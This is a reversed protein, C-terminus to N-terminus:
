TVARSINGTPASEHFCTSAFIRSSKDKIYAREFPRRHRHHNEAKQVEVAKVVSALKAKCSPLAFQFLDDLIGFTECSTM